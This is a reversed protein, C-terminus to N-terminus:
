LFSHLEYNRTDVFLCENGKTQPNNPLQQFMDNIGQRSTYLDVVFLANCTFTGYVFSLIAMDFTRAKNSTLNLIIYLRAKTEM